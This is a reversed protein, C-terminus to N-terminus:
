TGSPAPAVATPAPSPPAVAPARRAHLQWAAIAGVGLLALAFLLALIPRLASPKEAVPAALAVSSPALPAAHVGSGLGPSPPASEPPRVDPLKLEGTVFPSVTMYETGSFPVLLPGSAPPADHARVQVGSTPPVTEARVLAAPAGAAPRLPPPKKKPREKEERQADIKEELEKFTEAKAVEIFDGRLAAEYWAIQAGANRVVFAALSQQDDVLFGKQARWADLRAQIEAASSFRDEPKKALCKEVIAIFEPNLAPRLDSLKPPPDGAIEMMVDFAAKAMWPRRGALLEFMLVGFSFIDARHDVKGGRAQEPAM